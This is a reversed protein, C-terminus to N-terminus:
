LNCFVFRSYEKFCSLNCLQFFVDTMEEQLQTYFSTVKAVLKSFSVSGTVNKTIEKHFHWFSYSCLEKLLDAYNTSNVYDYLENLVLKTNLSHSVVENMYEFKPLICTAYEQNLYDTEFETREALLAKLCNQHIQQFLEETQNNDFTCQLSIRFLYFPSFYGSVADNVAPSLIDFLKDIGENLHYKLLWSIDLDEDIESDVELAAKFCLEKEYM